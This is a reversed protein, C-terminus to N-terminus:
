WPRWWPRDKKSNAAMQKQKEYWPDTLRVAETVFHCIDGPPGQSESGYIFSVGGKDGQAAKFLVSLKCTSGAKSPVDYEGFRDLWEPRVQARLETFLPDNTRGIFLDNETNNVAGTGLRNVLGDNALVIFLAQRDAIDLKVMIANISEPTMTQPATLWSVYHRHVAPGACAPTATM